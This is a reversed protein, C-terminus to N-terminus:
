NDQFNSALKFQTIYASREIMQLRRSEITNIVVVQWESTSEDGIRKVFYKEKEHVVAKYYNEAVGRGTIICRHIIDKQLQKVTEWETPSTQETGDIEDIM